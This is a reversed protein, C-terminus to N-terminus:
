HSNPWSVVSGPALLGVLLFPLEAESDSSSGINGLALRCFIAEFPGSFSAETDQTFSPKIM